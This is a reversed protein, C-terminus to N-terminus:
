RPSTLVDDLAEAATPDGRRQGGVRVVSRSRKDLLWAYLPLLLMGGPLLFIFFGPAWLRALRQLSRRLFLRDDRTWAGGNRPKFLVRALDEVQAMEQRVRLQWRGIM